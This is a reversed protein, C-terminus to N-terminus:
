RAITSSTVAKHPKIMAIFLRSENARLHKMKDIYTRLTDVLCLCSNDLISPFFFEAIPKGQRSQKALTSSSFAIGQNNVKM